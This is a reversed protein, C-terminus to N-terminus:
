NVYRIMSFGDQAFQFYAGAKPLAPKLAAAQAAIFAVNAAHRNPAWKQIYVLGSFIFSYVFFHVFLFVRRHYEFKRLLIVKQLKRLM